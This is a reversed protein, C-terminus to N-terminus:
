NIGWTRLLGSDDIIAFRGNPGDWTRAVYQEPTGQRYVQTRRLSWGRSRAAIQGQIDGGIRMYRAIDGEFHRTAHDFIGDAVTDYTGKSWGGILRDFERRTMGSEAIMQFLEDSCINHVWVGLEGVHYTAWGDVSFNYVPEVIGTAEVGTM